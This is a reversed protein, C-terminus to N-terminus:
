FRKGFGDSQSICIKSVEKHKLMAFLAKKLSVVKPPLQTESFSAAESHILELFM